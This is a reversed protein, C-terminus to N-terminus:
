LQSRRVPKLLQLPSQRYAAHMDHRRVRTSKNTSTQHKTSPVKHKPKALAEKTSHPEDESRLLPINITRSLGCEKLLAIDATKFDSERSAHGQKEEYYFSASCLVGLLTGAEKNDM